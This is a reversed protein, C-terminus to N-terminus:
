VTQSAVFTRLLALCAQQEEKEKASYLKDDAARVGCVMSSPLKEWSEANKFTDKEFFAANEWNWYTNDDSVGAASVGLKEFFLAGGRMAGCVTETYYSPDFFYLHVDKSAMHGLIAQNNATQVAQPNDASIDLCQIQVVVNGDHNQDSGCAALETQLQEILKQSVGQRTVMCILYDPKVRTAAQVIMLILVAALATVGLVMWKHYYWFNNWRSKPTQPQQPPHYALEEKPVGVLYRERAM